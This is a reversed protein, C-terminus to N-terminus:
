HRSMVMHNNNGQQGKKEEFYRYDLFLTSAMLVAREKENAEKPFEITFVDADSIMAKVCGPSKKNM